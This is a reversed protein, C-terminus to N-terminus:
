ESLNIGHITEQKIFDLIKKGLPRLKMNYIDDASADRVQEFFVTGWECVLMQRRNGDVLGMVVSYDDLEPVFVVDGQRYELQEQPFEPIEDNWNKTAPYKAYSNQTNWKDIDVRCKILDSYNEIGVEVEHTSEFAFDDMDFESEHHCDLVLECALGFDHFTEFSTKQWYGVDAKKVTEAFPSFNDRPLFKGLFVNIDSDPCEFFMKIENTKM